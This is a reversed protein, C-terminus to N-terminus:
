EAAHYWVPITDLYLIRCVVGVTGGAIEVSREGASGPCLLAKAVLKCSDLKCSGVSTRGDREALQPGPRKFLRSWTRPRQNRSRRHFIEYILLKRNCYWPVYKISSPTVGFLGYASVLLIESSIRM